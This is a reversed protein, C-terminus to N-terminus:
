YKSRKLNVVIYGPARRSSKLLLINANLLSLFLYETNICKSLPDIEEARQDYVNLQKRTFIHIKIEWLIERITISLLLMIANERPELKTLLIGFQLRKAM